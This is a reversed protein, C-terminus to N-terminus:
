GEDGYGLVDKEEGDLKRLVEEESEVEGGLGGRSDGRRELRRRLGGQVGFEVDGIIRQSSDKNTNKRHFHEGIILLLPILGELRPGHALSDLTLLQRLLLLGSNTSSEDSTSEPAPTPM